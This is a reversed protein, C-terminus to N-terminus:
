VTVSAGRKCAASTTAQFGSGEEVLGIGNAKAPHRQARDRGNASPGSIDVFVHALDAQEFKFDTVGHGADTYVKDLAVLVAHLPTAKECCMYTTSHDFAHLEVCSPAVALLLTDVAAKSGTTYNVTVAYQDGLVTTQTQSSPGSGTGHKALSSISSTITTTTRSSSSSNTSFTTTSNFSAGQIQKM